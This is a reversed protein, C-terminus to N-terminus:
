GGVEIALVGDFKITIPFGHLVLGGNKFESASTLSIRSTVLFAIMATMFWVPSIILRM